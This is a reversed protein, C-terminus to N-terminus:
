VVSADFDLEKSDLSHKMTQDNWENPSWYMSKGEHYANWFINPSTPLCRWSKGCGCRCFREVLPPIESDNM